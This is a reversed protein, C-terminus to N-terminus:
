QVIFTVTSTHTVMAGNITGTASITEMYTGPTTPITTATASSTGSGSSCGTIGVSAMALVALVLGALKRRKPLMVLLLLGALSIGAELAMTSHAQADNAAKVTLSNQGPAIGVAPVYAFLNLTTQGSTTTSSLTVPNVTFSAEASLSSSASAVLTVTGTFGNLAAVTFVVGPAAQGHTATVTTTAPSLTFDPVTSSTVNLSFAGKSGAYNTDGSYTAQVTHVGVTLGTTSLSYTAVGGSLTVLAGTAVGDVTFQATGTPTTTSTYGTCPAIPPTVQPVGVVCSVSTATFTVSTGQVTSSASSTLTTYSPTTGGTTALATVLAWDNIMNFVDVSGWGTAQDYGATASYALLLNGNCNTTTSVCPLSSYDAALPAYDFCDATGPSCPSANNGVTVDHFVSSAYLLSNALAYIKPNAVGIRSGGIKQEVLALIGAFSPAGVSTGGVVFLSGNVSERYGSVCSGEACMIYPDHVPSANFAVDPVDRSFDNPVGTGVQWSPKSYYASAGGGGAALGPSTSNLVAIDDNWVIEPIYSLASGQYNGNTASWYSSTAGNENFETGGVATVYPSDGPFDIAVGDQAVGADCDTAGSDGAAAIVTIGEAAAMQLTTEYYVLDAQGVDPECEGYSDTIIPALNQDIAYTLSGDIVDSSNVFIISASPATTGSWELDLESEIIDDSNSSVGPDSGDLVVTYPNASLSSVSRFTSIDTSFVDTQGVVAIKIGTGNIGATLAANEDYITYFDGPAMFTNGSVSSTFNPQVGSASSGASASGPIIRTKVHPKMKFDTLGTVAATVNAIAQPLMPATYNALHTETGLQVSHLQTHFAQNAQGVTGSFQIFEGGRAIATITFGQATLWQSVQALDAPALGFQAGFQEPTLWQHYQPSSPDQLNGLLLTLSAQQVPTMNFRLSMRQITQGTPALGLDKAAALRPSVNGPIAALNSSDVMGVRPNSAYVPLSAGAVFAALVAIHFVRFTPM